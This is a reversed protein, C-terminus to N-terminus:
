ESRIGTEKLMKTYQALENRIHRDLEDPTSGVAEQGLAAFREKIEESQIVKAFHMSLLNVIAHPTARPAVAGYWTTVEYGPLTEAVTPLEPFADSRRASTVAIARLKGARALPVGTVISTIMLVVQGSIVDLLGQPPGKYPVHLMRLGGAAALLMETALHVTGGNGTSAYNLQGPKSKVFAILETISHVPVSLNVVLVYPQRVVLSIPAFDGLVDYPLKTQHATDVVHGAAMMLLTYGDPSAQAVMGAGIAGNAGARNDVIVNQKLSESLRPGFNRMVIDPGSGALFPIVMRIPKTPYTDRGAGQATVAYWAWCLMTLGMLKFPIDSRM